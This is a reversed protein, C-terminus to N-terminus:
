VQFQVASVPSVIDGVVFEENVVNVVPVVIICRCAIPVCVTVPVQVSARVSVSLKKKFGCGVGVMVPVNFTHIPLVVVSLSERVPPVHTLPLVPTAVTPEVPTTVGTPGPVDSM